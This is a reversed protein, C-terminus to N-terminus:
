KQKEVVQLEKVGKVLETSSSVYGIAGRKAKVFDMVQSDDAREVPPIDRGSFIMRQWYKLIASVDKKAVGRTFADRVPSDAEQNVPVVLEDDEWRKWKKIFAREVIKAELSVTPNDGHIVVKYGPDEVVPADEQAPTGVQAPTGLTAWFALLVVWLTQTSKKMLDQVGRRPNVIRGPRSRM